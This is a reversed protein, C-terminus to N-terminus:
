NLPAPSHETACLALLAARQAETVGTLSTSDLGQYRGHAQLHPHM